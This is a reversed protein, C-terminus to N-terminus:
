KGFNRRCYVNKASSDNMWIWKANSAIGELEDRTSTGSIITAKKWELQHSCNWPSDDCCRSDACIWSENTVIGNSLSALIWCWERSLCRAEITVSKTDEPLVFRKAETSITESNDADIWIKNIGTRHRVAVDIIIGKM